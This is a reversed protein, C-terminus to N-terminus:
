CVLCFFAPAGFFFIVASQESIQALILCSSLLCALERAIDIAFM